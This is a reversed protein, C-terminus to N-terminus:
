APTTNVDSGKVAYDYRFTVQVEALGDDESSLEGWNVTFPWIYFLNWVQAIGGQPDLMALTGSTAYQKKFGMQGTVPNYVMNSWNWLIQSASSPGNIYDYFSAPLESWTIKGALYFRENLRQLETVNYTQTPRQSTHAAFALQVAADATAAGPISTFQFVWRHKRLPELISSQSSSLTLPM